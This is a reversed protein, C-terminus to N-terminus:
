PSQGSAQDRALQEIALLIRTKGIGPEGELTIGNMGRRASALGQELAALEISRGIVSGTIRGTFLGLSCLSASEENLISSSQNM